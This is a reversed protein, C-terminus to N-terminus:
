SISKTVQGTALYLGKEVTYVKGASTLVKIDYPTPTDVPLALTETDALQFLLQGTGGAGVDTIQGQGAVAGPLIVKQLLAQADAVSLDAKLTLWAKTLTQGNPIGPVTRNVDLDNGAVIGAISANLVTM